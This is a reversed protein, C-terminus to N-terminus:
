ITPPLTDRSDSDDLLPFQIISV